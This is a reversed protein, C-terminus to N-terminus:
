FWRQDVTWSETSTEFTHLVLKFNQPSNKSWSLTRFALFILWFVKNVHVVIEFVASACPVIDFSVKHLSWDESCSEVGAGIKSLVNIPPASSWTMTLNSVVLLEAEEFPLSTKVFSSVPEEAGVAIVTPVVMKNLLTWVWPRRFISGFGASEPISLSFTSASLSDLAEPLYISLECLTQTTRNTFSMYM